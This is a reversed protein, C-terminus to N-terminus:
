APQQQTLCHFAGLGWVYIVPPTMLWLVGLRSRRYNTVIGLWTAYAWFAPERLSECFHRLQM